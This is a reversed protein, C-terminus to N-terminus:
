MLYRLFKPIVNNLSDDGGFTLGSVDVTQSGPALSVTLTESSSLTVNGITGGTVKLEGSENFNHGSVTVTDAIGGGGGTVKLEGSENFNYGAIAVDNEVVISQPMTKHVTQLRFEGNGTAVDGNIYKVGFYRARHEVNITKTYIGNNSTDLTFTDQFDWNQRDISWRCIIGNPASPQDSRVSIVACAHTKIDERPTESSNWIGEDNAASSVDLTYSNVSNVLSAM